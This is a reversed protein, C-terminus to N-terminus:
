GEIIGRKGPVGMQEKGWAELVDKMRGYMIPDAVLIVDTPIINGDEGIYSKDPVFVIPPPKPIPKKIKRRNSNNNKM